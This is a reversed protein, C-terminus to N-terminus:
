LRGSERDGLDSGFQCHTVPEVFQGIVDRPLRRGAELGRDVVHHRLNGAEGELFEGFGAGVKRGLHLAHALGHGDAAGELLRKLLREAPQLHAPETESAVALITPSRGLLGADVVDARVQGLGVVLANPVKTIGHFIPHRDILDVLQGADVGPEEVVEAFDYLHLLLKALDAAQRLYAIPLEPLRLLEAERVALQGRNPAGGLHVHASLALPAPDHRREFRDIGARGLELGVRRVEVRGVLVFVFCRGLLRLFAADHNEAAPRVTDPLPDLEVVAAAMRTERQPFEPDLRDHDIRIGLGHAGVVVGAVEQEELRQGGLVHEIDEVANLGVPDDHLEATLRRQIEGTRQGIRVHRDDAGADVRDLVGFVAFPEAIEEIAQTELLRCAPDRM